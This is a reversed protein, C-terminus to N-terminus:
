ADPKLVLLIKFDAVGSHEAAERTNGSLSLGSNVNLPHKIVRVEAIAPDKSLRTAIANVTDIAARYDGQFPRIEGTLYGSQKLASGPSPPAGGPASSPAAEVNVAETSYTWNIEQLFVEPTSEVARAVIARRRDEDWSDDLAIGVWGALWALFDDPTLRPDLYSDFNDITSFVPALVADLGGLLRQVFDDDQYLAPLSPGLPHPTELGPVYGRM